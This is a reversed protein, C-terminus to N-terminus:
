GTRAVPDGIEPVIRGSDPFEGAREAASVLRAVVLEAYLASDRGIFSKIAEVDVIAQPSWVIEAV